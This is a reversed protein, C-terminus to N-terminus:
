HRPLPILRQHVLVDIYAGDEVCLWLSPPPYRDDPEILSGLSASLANRTGHDLRAIPVEIFYSDAESM